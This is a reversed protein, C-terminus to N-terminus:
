PNRLTLILPRHDSVTSWRPDSSVCSRKEDFYPLLNKSLFIFDIRSYVDAEAWHHTWREGRDDALPLLVLANLFGAPGAIERLTPTNKTDNFDGWLVIHMNPNESTIGAIHERLVRAERLRMAAQDFDPVSRRSKFHIGVFRLTGLGPAELEVDLIGRQMTQWQAGLVFRPPAPSRNAKIPYRSLLGIQRETDAGFTLASHPLDLGAAALRIRLDELAPVGGMELLGLVDPRLDVLMKVLAEIERLPKPPTKRNTINGPSSSIPSTDAETPHMQVLYNHANLM